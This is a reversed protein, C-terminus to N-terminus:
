SDLRNRGIYQINDMVYCAGFNDALDMWAEDETEKMMTITAKTCTDYFTYTM